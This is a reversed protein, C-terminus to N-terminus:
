RDRGKLKVVQELVAAKIHVQLARVIETETPASGLQKIQGQMEHVLIFLRDLKEESTEKEKLTKKLIFSMLKFIIQGAIALLIMAKESPLVANLEKDGVKGLPLVTPEEAMAFQQVCLLAMWVLYQIRIKYKFSLYQCFQIVCGRNPRVSMSSSNPGSNESM